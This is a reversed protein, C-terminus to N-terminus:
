KENAIEVFKWLYLYYWPEMLALEQWKLPLLYENETHFVLLMLVNLENGSPSPRKRLAPILRGRFGPNFKFLIVLSFHDRSTNKKSDRGREGNLGLRDRILCFVM